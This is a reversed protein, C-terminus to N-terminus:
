GIINHVYLEVVTTFGQQRKAGSSCHKMIKFEHIGGRNELIVGAGVTSFCCEGGGRGGGRGGFFSDIYGGNAWDYLPM